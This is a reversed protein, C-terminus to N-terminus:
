SEKSLVPWDICAKRFNGEIYEYCLYRPRGGHASTTAVALMNKKLYRGCLINLRRRDFNPLRETCRISFRYPTNSVVMSRLGSALSPFSFCKMLSEKIVWRSFFDRKIIDRDPELLDSSVFSRSEELEDKSFFRKMLAEYRASRDLSEIDVGVTDIGVGLAVVALDDTHSISIDYSAGIGSFRRRGIESYTLSQVVSHMGLFRLACYLCYRSAIIERYRSGSCVWDKVSSDRQSGFDCWSQDIQKSNPCTRAFFDAWREDVGCMRPDSSADSSFRIGFIHIISRM